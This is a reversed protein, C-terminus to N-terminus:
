VATGRTSDIFFLYRFCVVCLIRQAKKMNSLHTIHIYIQTIHNWDQMGSIFPNSVIPKAFALCVECCLTHNEEYYTLKRDTGVKHKFVQQVTLYKTKNQPHHSLFVGLSHSDSKLHKFYNLPSSAHSDEEARM